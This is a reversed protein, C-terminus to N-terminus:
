KRLVLPIVVAIVIILLGFILMLDLTSIGTNLHPAIAPSFSELAFIPDLPMTGPNYVFTVVGQANSSVNTYSVLSGHDYMAISYETNPSAGNFQLNIMPAKTSNVGIQIYSPEVRM